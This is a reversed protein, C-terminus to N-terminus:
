VIIAMQIKTLDGFLEGTISQVRSNVHMTQRHDYANTQGEFGAIGYQGDYKSGAFWLPRKVQSTM